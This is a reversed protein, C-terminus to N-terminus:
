KSYYQFAVINSKNQVPSSSFALDDWLLICMDMKMGHVLPGLLCTTIVWGEVARYITSIFICSYKTPQRNFNLIFKLYEYKLMYFFLEQGDGHPPGRVQRVLYYVALVVVVVDIHNEPGSPLIAIERVPM